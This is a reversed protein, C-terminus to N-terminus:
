VSVKWQGKDKSVRHGLSVLKNIFEDSAKIYVYPRGMDRAHNLKERFDDEFNEESDTNRKFVWVDWGGHASPTVEYGKKILEKVTDADEEKLHVKVQRDVKAMDIKRSIDDRIRKTSNHCTICMGYRSNTNPGERGCGKACKSWIEKNRSNLPFWTGSWNYHICPKNSNWDEYVVFDRKRKECEEKNECVKGKEHEPLESWCENCVRGSEPFLRIHQSFHAM